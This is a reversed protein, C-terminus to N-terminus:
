PFGTRQRPSKAAGAQRQRLKYLPEGMGMMVVNTIARTDGQQRGLRAAGAGARRRRSARRGPFRRAARAGDLDPSSRRGGHPQAGADAHRHPLVSCTLTCGFRRASACRARDDEPIYVTEIEVPPLNPDKPDRYRFLWKRTGTSRCQESVIEAPRAPFQREADAPLFKQRQEDARLRSATSTSGTEM